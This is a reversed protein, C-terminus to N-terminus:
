LRFKIFAYALGMLIFFLGVGLYAYIAQQMPVSDVHLRLTPENLSVFEWADLQNEGMQEVQVYNLDASQLKLQGVPVLVRGAKLFYPYHKELEYSGLWVAVRYQFVLTTEGPPFLRYFQLRMGLLEYDKTSEAAQHLLNFNEYNKPLDFRLPNKTTDIVDQTPNQVTLVETIVLQGVGAELVLAANQVALDEVNESVGPILLNVTAETQGPALFFFDSQVFNGEYRSGLQYAAQPELSMPNFKFQGSPATQTRAVPGSTQLQGNADLVFKLLVVVLGSSPLKSEKPALVQGSVEVFNQGWSMTPFLLFFVWLRKLM